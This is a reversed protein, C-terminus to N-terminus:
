SRRSRLCSDQLDDFLTLAVLLCIPFTATGKLCLSRDATIARPVRLLGHRFFSLLILLSRRLDPRNWWCIYKVLIPLQRRLEPAAQPVRARVVM